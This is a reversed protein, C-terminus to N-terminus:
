LTAKNGHQNEKEVTFAVYDQLFYPRNQVSHRYYFIWLRVSVLLFVIPM